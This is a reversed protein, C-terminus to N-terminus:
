IFNFLIISIISLLTQSLQYYRKRTRSFKPLYATVCKYEILSTICTESIRLFNFLCMNAFHLWVLETLENERLSKYGDWIQLDSAKFSFGWGFSLFLFATLFHFFFTRFETLYYHFNRTNTRICFM